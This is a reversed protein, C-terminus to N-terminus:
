IIRYIVRVVCHYVKTTLIQRRYVHRRHRSFDIGPSYSYFYKLHGYVWLMPISIFRFSSFLVNIIIDFQFLGLTKKFFFNLTKLTLLRDGRQFPSIINAYNSRLYVNSETLDINFCVPERCVTTRYM